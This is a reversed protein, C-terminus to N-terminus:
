AAIEYDTDRKAIIELRKMAHRRATIYNSREDIWVGAMVVGMTDHNIALQACDTLVPCGACLKHALAQRNTNNYRRGSLDYPDDLAHPNTNACKANDRWHTTTM